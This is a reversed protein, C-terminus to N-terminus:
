TLPQQSLVDEDYKQAVYKEEFQEAFMYYIRDTGSLASEGLIVAPEQMEVRTHRLAPELIPTIRVHRREGIGKDQRASVPACRGAPIDQKQLAVKVTYDARLSIGRLDSRTLRTMRQCSNPILTISWCTGSGWSREYPQLDTYLYGPYRADRSGKRASSIERLSRLLKYYRSYLLSMCIKKSPLTNRQRSCCATAIREITPDNALNLYLVGREIARILHVGKYFNVRRLYYGNCRICCLVEGGQQTGEGAESDACRAQQALGSGSFVPTEGGCWRNM